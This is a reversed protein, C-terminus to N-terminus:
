GFALTPARDDPQMRDLSAEPQAQAELLAVY